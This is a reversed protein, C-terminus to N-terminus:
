NSLEVFQVPEPTKVLIGVQKFFKRKVTGLAAAMSTVPSKKGKRSDNYATMAQTIKPMIELVSDSEKIQVIYHAGNKHLIVFENKVRVEGTTEEKKEKELEKLKTIIKTALATAVQSEQLASQVENISLM